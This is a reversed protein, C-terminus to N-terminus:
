MASLRSNGDGQQRSGAAGASRLRGSRVVASSKFINPKSYRRKKPHRQELKANKDRRTKRMEELKAQALALDHNFFHGYTREIEELSTGAMKAVQFTPTGIVLLESIYLDRFSYPTIHERVIEGHAAAARKVTRLRHNVDNQTWPKGDPPSFLPDDAPKRTANRQLVALTEAGIQISRLSPKSLTTVRKHKGLCLQRTRPMFDRVLPTCLESTRAGTAHYVRLLDAFVQWSDSTAYEEPRRERWRGSEGRVRTVDVLAWRFLTDIEDESPLDAETLDKPAVFGRSLKALPRHSDPLYGGGGDSTSDAAWNWCAKVAIVIARRTKDSIPETAASDLTRAALYDEVHGRSLLTARLYGVAAGAGQLGTTGGAGVVHHCFKKLLSRRQGFLAQSRNRRVRRLQAACVRIISHRLVSHPERKTTLSNLYQRFLKKADDHSVEDCRGFYVGSPSGAKTYWHGEHRCLKAARPM